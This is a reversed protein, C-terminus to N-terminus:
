GRPSIGIEERDKRRKEESMTLAKENGQRGKTEGVGLPTAATTDTSPVGQNETESVERRPAPNSYDVSYVSAMSEAEDRSMHTQRGEYPPVLGGPEKVGGSHIDPGLSDPYGKIPRQDQQEAM